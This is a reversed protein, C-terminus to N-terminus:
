PIVISWNLASAGDMPTGVDLDKVSDKEVGPPAAYAYMFDDNGSMDNPKKDGDYSWLAYGQYTWQKSGDDRVAINWFGQPQADAPAKFPHWVKMCDADCHINLGIDRGVAPRNPHGRRLSHGGGSQHVVGDRKYLTLGAATAIIRGQGPTNQVSVGAPMFYAYVTAPQIKKDVGIGNADGPALDNSSWFLAKGKYAWQKIGDERLVLSFDGKPEALQAAAAPVFSSDLKKERKVDGDLAYLTRNRYDVLVLGTADPVEKVTIGAPVDIGTSPFALAATWGDVPKLDPAGGRAGAGRFGGGVYEGAGNKRRGGFRAPSNGWLSGPDVDKVFHYLAKGKYAWQKAGDARAILSWEGFGKSGKQAVVPVWEKACEGACTAKGVPDADYSYLTLGKADTFAIDDRIQAAVTQKGLDYGQGKGLVETTIGPPTLLQGFAQSSKAAMVSGTGMAAMAAVSVGALQLFKQTKM